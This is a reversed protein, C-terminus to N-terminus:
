FLPQEAYGPPMRVPRHAPFAALRPASQREQPLSKSVNRADTDLERGDTLRVRVRLGDLLVAVVECKPMRYAVSPASPVRPVLWVEM